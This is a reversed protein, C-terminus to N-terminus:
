RKHKFLVVIDNSLFPDTLLPQIRAFDKKKPNKIKDLEKAVRMLRSAEAAM